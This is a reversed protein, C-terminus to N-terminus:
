SQARKREMIVGRAAEVTALATSGLVPCSISTGGSTTITLKQVGSGSLIEVSVIDRYFSESSKSGSPSSSTLSFFSETAYLADDGFECYLVEVVNGRWLRDAGQRKLTSADWDFATLTLPPRDGRDVGRNSIENSKSETISHAQRRIIETIEGDTVRNSRVSVAWVIGGAISGLGVLAMVVGTFIQENAFYGICVFAVLLGLLILTIPGGMGAPKFYRNAKQYDATTM